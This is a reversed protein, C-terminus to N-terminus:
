GTSARHARTEGEGTELRAQLNAPDLVQEMWTDTEVPAEGHKGGCRASAPGQATQRQRAREGPAPDLPEENTRDKMPQPRRNSTQVTCRAGRSTERSSHGRSVERAARVASIEGPLFATRGRVVAENVEAVLGFPKATNHWSAGDHRGEILNKNMPERTEGLRREAVATVRRWRSKQQYKIQENRMNQNEYLPSSGWKPSRGHQACVLRELQGRRCRAIEFNLTEGAAAAPSTTTRRRPM